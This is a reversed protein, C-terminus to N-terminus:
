EEELGRCNNKYVTLYNSIKDTVKRLEKYDEFVLNLKNKSDNVDEQIGQFLKMIGENTIM